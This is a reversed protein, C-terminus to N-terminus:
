KKALATRRYINYMTIAQIFWAWATCWHGMLCLLSILILDYYLNLLYPVSTSWTHTTLHVAALTEITLYWLVALMVYSYWHTMDRTLFMVGAFLSFGLAFWKLIGIVRQSPATIAKSDTM